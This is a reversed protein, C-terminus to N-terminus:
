GHMPVDEDGYVGTDMYNNILSAGKELPRIAFMMFADDHGKQYGLSVGAIEVINIRGSTYMMIAVQADDLGVVPQRSSGWIRLLEEVTNMSFVMGGGACYPPYIDAPYVDEPVRWKGIRTVPRSFCWTGGYFYSDSGESILGLLYENLLNVNVIGDDDIKIIFKTNYNDAIYQFVWMVSYIQSSYFSFTESMLIDGYTSNEQKVKEMIDKDLTIGVLFFHKWSLASYNRKIGEDSWNYSLWSQRRLMDRDQIEEAITKTFIIFTYHTPDRRQNNSSVEQNFSSSNLEATPSNELLFGDSSFDWTMLLHLGLMLLAVVVLIMKLKRSYFEKMM